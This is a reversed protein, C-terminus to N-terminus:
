RQHHISSAQDSLARLRDRAEALDPKLALARELEARAEQPRGLAALAQALPLRVRAGKPRLAVARRLYPLAEAPRGWRVLAAGLSVQAEAAWPRLRLAERFRREAEQRDGRLEVEIAVRRVATYNGETVEMAHHFLALTDQWHGVQARATLALAAIILTAAAASVARWARAPREGAPRAPLWEAFGWVLAAFLGVSPLYTYRDAMAQRGVQVLGIVPVLMGLFWLWGVALWPARRLRALAFATVAALFVAALAAKWLPVAAPLPYLVALDRPWFTKGLYVVYSVLANAVRRAFPVADLSAMAVRQTYVTVAGAALALVLFPVKELLLPRVARWHERAPRAAWFDPPLRGLPWLDLLLLVFPLTVVMPKSLLGAAFALLAVLYRGAAPRHIYRLWAGLTLLFFLGSLVDKREAIWAVSEVHLPHVAFLAAVAASRGTAGTMRRLLAFLLLVNVAHLLLNTLHHGGPDLGWLTCDLMHSLMTLPHWNGAVAAGWAWLFGGWTLGRKIVQNDTVYLNDDYGVFRHGLVPAYVLVTLAALAVALALTRWSSRDTTTRFTVL